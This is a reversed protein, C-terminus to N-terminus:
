ALSLTLSARESNMSQAGTNVNVDPLEARKPHGRQLEDIQSDSRAM